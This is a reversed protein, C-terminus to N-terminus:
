FVLLQQSKILHGGKCKGFWKGGNAKIMDKHDYTNGHILWGDLLASCMIDGYKPKSPMQTLESSNGVFEELSSIDSSNSESSFSRNRDPANSVGPPPSVTGSSIQKRLASELELVRAVLAQFGNQTFEFATAEM